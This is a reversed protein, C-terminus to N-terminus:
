NGWIVLGLSKIRGVLHCIDRAGDVILGGPLGLDDVQPSSLLKVGYRWGERPYGGQLGWEVWTMPTRMFSCYFLHFYVAM